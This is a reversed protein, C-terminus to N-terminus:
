RACCRPFELRREFISHESIYPSISPDGTSDASAAGDGRAEGGPRRQFTVAHEGSGSAIELVSGQQPLIEVLADGIPGRNRETAPFYLRDQDTPSVM